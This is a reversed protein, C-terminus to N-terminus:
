KKLMANTRELALEIPRATVPSFGGYPNSQYYLLALTPTSVAFFLFFALIQPRRAQLHGFGVTIVAVLDIFYAFYWKVPNTQGEALDYRTNRAARLTNIQALMGAHVSPTTAAAMEASSILTTVKALSGGEGYTRNPRGLQPWDEVATYREYTNLEQIVSQGIPSKLGSAIRAINRLVDGESEAAAHARDRAGWVENALFVMNLGFMLFVTSVFPGAVGNYTKLLPTLRSSHSLYVFLIPIVITAIVFIVHILTSDAM